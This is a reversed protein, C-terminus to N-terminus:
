YINTILLGLKEWYILIEKPNYKAIHTLKIHDLLVQQQKTFKNTNYPTAPTNEIGVIQEAMYHWPGNYELVIDIKSMDKSLAAEKSSFVVLDYSFYRHKDLFPVYIMQWFEKKDEYKFMVRNLNINRENLFNLIYLKASKSSYAGLVGPNRVSHRIFCTKQKKNKTEETRAAIKLKQKWTDNFKLGRRSNSIKSSRRQKSEDSLFKSPTNFLTSCSVSCFKNFGVTFKDFKTPFSKCNACLNDSYQNYYVRYIRESFSINKYNNTLSIITQFLKILSHKEVYYKRTLIPLLKKTNSLLKNHILEICIEQSYHLVPELDNVNITAQPNDMQTDLIISAINVLYNTSNYNNTLIILSCQM